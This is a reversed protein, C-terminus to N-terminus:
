KKQEDRKELFNVRVHTGASVGVERTQTVERGNEQWQVKVTYTYHRGRELPTSQLKRVPGTSRAKWGNFWLIADPPVLVELQARTDAEGYEIESPIYFRTPTASTMRPVPSIRWYSSAFGPEYGPAYNTGPIYGSYHNIGSSPYLAGPVSPSPPRYAPYLPSAYSPYLGYQGPPAAQVPITLALALVGAPLWVWPSTRARQLM